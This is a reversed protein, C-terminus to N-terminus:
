NRFTRESPFHVIAATGVGKASNIEFKGQFLKVFANVLPLGLGTGSIEKNKVLDVRRFPIMAVNIDEETMGIGHDIISLEISGEVSIVLKIRIDNNPLSYKIANSLLNILIQRFTKEDGRLFIDEIPIEESIKINNDNAMTTVMQMCSQIEYKIDIKEEGFEQHGAEIKSLDLLDNIIALLHVGSSNILKAYEVFNDEFKEPKVGGEGSLISSFGIIANLPTRLEHSMNQLFISKYESAKEAKKRAEFLEKETQKLETIDTSIGALAREGTTEDEIIFKNSYFVQDGDAKEEGGHIHGNFVRRDLEMVKKALTSSFVESDDKGIFDVVEKGVSNAGKENIMLYKGNEDKLYIANPIAEVLAALIKKNIQLM